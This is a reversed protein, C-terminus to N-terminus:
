NLHSKTKGIERGGELLIKKLKEQILTNAKAFSSNQGRKILEKLDGDTLDQYTFLLNKVVKDDLGDRIQDALTETMEQIQEANMKLDKPLSSNSGELIGQVIASNLEVVSETGAMAKDFEEVLDLRGEHPPNKEFDSLYEKFAQTGQASNAYEELSWIKALFPDSTRKQLERLEEISLNSALHDTIKKVITEGDFHKKLVRELKTYQEPSLYQEAEKLRDDIIYDISKLSNSTSTTELIARAIDEKPYTKEVEVIKKKEIKKPRPTEIKQIASEKVKIDDFIIDAEKEPSYFFYFSLLALGLIAVLKKM